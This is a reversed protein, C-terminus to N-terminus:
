LRSKQFQFEEEDSFDPIYQFGAAKAAKISGINNVDINLIVTNIDERNLLHTGIESLIKTGIKQKRYKQAVGYYVTTAMVNNKVIRHGLYVYGLKEQSNNMVIYTSNFISQEENSTIAHMKGFFEQFESDQYLEQLFEVDSKSSLPRLFLSEMQLM